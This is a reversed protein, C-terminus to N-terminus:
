YWSKLTRWLLPKELLWTRIHSNSWLSSLTSFFQHKRITTSFVRSLRKYLLSILGALGSPFWGEINMLLVSPPPSSDISQGGSTFLWSMSFSESPPFSPRFSSFPSASFSITPHCWQSLQCSNSCIRSFLSPCPLKTYQLGYPWLSESLVSCSFLLSWFELWTWTKSKIIKLHNAALMCCSRKHVIGLVPCWGIREAHEYSPPVM